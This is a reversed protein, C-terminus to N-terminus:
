KIRILVPYSFSYAAGVKGVCTLWNGSPSLCEFDTTVWDAGLGASQVVSLLSKLGSSSTWVEALGSPVDKRCVAVTGDNSIAFAYGGNAPDIIRGQGTATNWIAPFRIGSANNASGAAFAFNGSYGWIQATNFGSPPNVKGSYDPALTTQYTDTALDYVFTLGLSNIVGTPNGSDDVATVSVQLNPSGELKLVHFSHAKANYVFAREPTGSGGDHSLGGIWNGSPSVASALEIQTVSDLFPVAAPHTPGNWSAGIDQRTGNGFAESGCVVGKDNVSYAYGTFAGQNLVLKTVAYPIAQGGTGGGSGGCGTLVLVSMAGSLACGLKLTTRVM